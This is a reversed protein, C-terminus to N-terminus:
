QRSRDYEGSLEEDFSFQGGVGSGDLAEGLDMSPAMAPVLLIATLGSGDTSWGVM